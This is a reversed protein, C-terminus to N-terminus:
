RKKTYGLAKFKTTFGIRKYFENPYTGEETALSHYRNGLQQSIYVAHLTTLKGYGGGRVERLSGVASIYGVGQYNNLISTAVPKNEKYVIFYQLRDTKGFKDWAKKTAPIFNKVDGYPNQPDGKQYSNNFTDIFISLDKETLVRKVLSVDYSHTINKEYFMWADEWNKRYGISDLLQVHSPTKLEEEFYVAPVRKSIKFIEEISELQAPTPTKKLLMYNDFVSPSNRSYTLTGFDLDKLKGDVVDKQLKQFKTLFQYNNM